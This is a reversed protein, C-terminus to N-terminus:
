IGERKKGWSLQLFAGRSIKNWRVSYDGCYGSCADEQLLSSTGAWFVLVLTDPYILDTESLPSPHASGSLQTNIAKM